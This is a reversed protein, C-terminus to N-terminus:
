RVSTHSATASFTGKARVISWASIPRSCALNVGLALAVELASMQRRAATSGRITLRPAPGGRPSLSVGAVEPEGRQLGQAGDVQEDLPHVPVVPEQIEEQVEDVHEEQLQAAALALLGHRGDQLCPSEDM